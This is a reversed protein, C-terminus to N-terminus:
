AGKVQEVLKLYGADMKSSELIQDLFDSEVVTLTAVYEEVQKRSLTVAVDNDKGPRHVWEFDFEGLFEQWCTQKPSLKRQTKFYTNAVNDTVFLGGRM